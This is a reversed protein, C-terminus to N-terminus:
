EENVTAPVEPLIAKGYVPDQQDIYGNYNKIYRKLKFIGYTTTPMSVTNFLVNAKDLIGEIQQATYKSSYIQM